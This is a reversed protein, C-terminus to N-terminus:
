PGAPAWRTVGITTDALDRVEVAYLTFNALGYDGSITAADITMAGSASDRGYVRVGLDDAITTSAVGVLSTTTSALATGTVCGVPSGSSGHAEIPDGTSERRVEFYFCATSGPTASAFRFAFSASAIGLGTPLPANFALDVYRDSAFSSAWASTPASLGDAGFAYPSSADVAAGSSHDVVAFPATDREGPFVHGAGVDATVPYESTFLAATGPVGVIAALLAAATVAALPLTKHRRLM